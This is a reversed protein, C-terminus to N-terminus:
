GLNLNRVISCPNLLIEDDSGKGVIKGMVEYAPRENVGSLSVLVPTQIKPLIIQIHSGRVLAEYVSVGLEKNGNLHNTSQESPMDGFRVFIVKM